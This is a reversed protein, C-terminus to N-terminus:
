FPGRPDTDGLSQSLGEDVGILLGYGFAL